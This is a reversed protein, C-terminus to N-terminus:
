QVLPKWHLTAAAIMLRDFIHEKFYRRNQKYCFENLYNQLYHEGVQHYTALLQRKANSIMIHVWPLLKDARIELKSLNYFTSQKFTQSLLSYSNSGDAVIQTGEELNKSAEMDITDAKQDPLVIMKLHDVKIGPRNPDKHEDPVEESEVMVLVTAQVQSDKGRKRPEDEDADPDQAVIKFYGEDLEVVSGLKYQADRQGMVSRLKHLMEWIPQYRKHKLQRQVELASFPKKSTTLLHIAFFWYRFPLKSNEMVTGSRLTTRFHCKKCGWMSKGKLWYHENHGCSKCVIGVAERHKKWYRRCSAEDPFHESFELFTM